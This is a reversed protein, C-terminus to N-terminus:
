GARAGAARLRGTLLVAAVLAGAAEASRLGVLLLPAGPELLVGFARVVFVVLTFAFLVRAARGSSPLRVLGLAAAVLAVALAYASWGLAPNGRAEPPGLTALVADAVLLEGVAVAVIAAAIAVRSPGAPADLGPPPLVLPAEPESAPTPAPLFPLLTLALLSAFELEAAAYPAGDRGLVLLGAERVDDRVPVLAFQTAPEPGWAPRLSGAAFTATRAARSRIAAAPGAEADGLVQLREGPPYGRAGRLELRATPGCAWIGVVAHQGADALMAAALDLARDGGPDLRGLEYLLLAQARDAEAQALRKELAREAREAHFLANSTALEVALMDAASAVRTAHVEGFTHRESLAVLIGLTREGLKIPVALVEHGRRGDVLPVDADGFAVPGRLAGAVAAAVPALADDGSVGGSAFTVLREQVPLVVALADVGLVTTLALVRANWRDADTSIM